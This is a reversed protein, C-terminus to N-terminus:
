AYSITWKPKSYRLNYYESGEPYTSADDVNIGFANNVATKSLTVTLGEKEASLANIISEISAKKLKTSWRVNLGNSAIVSDETFIIEETAGCYDFANSFTTCKETVKLAVNKISKTGGINGSSFCNSLTTANGLDVTVNELFADQFMSTANTLNSTDLKKCVETMDVRAENEYNCRVFMSTANSATITYKPKLTVNNWGVGAFGYQYNKRNGYDQYADWHADYEAQKGEEFGVIRGSAEGNVFGEEYGITKGHEEGIAFGDNNGAVYGHSYVFPINKAM